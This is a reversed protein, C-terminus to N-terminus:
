RLSSVNVVSAPNTVLACLLPKENGTEAEFTGNGAIEGSFKGRKVKRRVWGLFTKPPFGNRLHGPKLPYFPQFYPYFLYITRM